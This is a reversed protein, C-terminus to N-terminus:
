CSSKKSTPEPPTKETGEEDPIQVFDGGRLIFHYEKSEFIYGWGLLLLHGPPLGPATGVIVYANQPDGEGTRQYILMAVSETMPVMGVNEYLEPNGFQAPDIPGPLALAILLFLTAM